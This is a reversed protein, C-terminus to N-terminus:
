WHPFAGHFRDTKTALFDTIKKVRELGDQRSIFNRQIGVLLAMVGFGTGGSTVLDGSNDRERALGSTPHGFDWFYKFTERQIITLLEEDSVRAFKDASDLSTLLKITPPTQLKAGEKSKLGTSIELDYLSLYEVPSKPSIHLISDGPLFMINLPIANGASKINIAAIASQQDIAQSFEYRISPNIPVDTYNSQNAISGLSWRRVVLQKPQVPTPDNSSGSKSCGWCATLVYLMLLYRNLTM